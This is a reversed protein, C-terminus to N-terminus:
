VYKGAYKQLRQMLVLRYYLSRSRNNCKKQIKYKPRSKTTNQIVLLPLSVFKIRSVHSFMGMGGHTNSYVLSFAPNLPTARLFCYFTVDLVTGLIM